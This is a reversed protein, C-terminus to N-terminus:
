TYRARARTAPSASPRPVVSPLDIEPANKAEAPVEITLSPDDYRSYRITMQDTRCVRLLFMGKDYTCVAPGFTHISSTLGPNLGPAMMTGPVMMTISTKIAGVTVADEVRDPLPEVSRHRTVSKALTAVDNPDMVFRTWAGNIGQYVTTGVVYSVADRAGSTTRHRSGVGRVFVTSGSRDGPGTFDIQYSAVAFAAAEIKSALSTSDDAAAVGGFLCLGAAMVISGGSWVTKRM